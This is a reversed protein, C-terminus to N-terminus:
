FASDVNQLNAPLFIKSMSSGLLLCIKCAMSTPISLPSHEYSVYIDESIGLKNAMDKTSFNNAIREKKLNSMRVGGTKSLEIIVRCKASTLVNQETKKFIYLYSLNIPINKHM